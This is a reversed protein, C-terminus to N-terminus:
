FMKRLTTRMSVSHITDAKTSPPYGRYTSPPYGMASGPESTAHRDPVGHATSAYLTGATSPKFSGGVFFGRNADGGYAVQTLRKNSCVVYEGGQQIEKITTVERVNPSIEYLYRVGSTTPVKENLWTLLGDFSHFQRQSVSTKLGPFHPDGNRYFTVLSGRHFAEAATAAPNDHQSNYMAPM